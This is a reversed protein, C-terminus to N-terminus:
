LGIGEPELLSVSGDALAAAVEGNSLAQAALVRPSSFVVAAGAAPDRLNFRVLDGEATVVYGQGGEGVFTPPQVVTSGFNFFTRPDRDHFFGGGVALLLTVTGSGGNFVALDPLRSGDLEAVSVAIPGDGGSKLRPGPIGVWDGQADYSGFLVSV